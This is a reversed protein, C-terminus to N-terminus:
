SGLIEQWHCRDKPYESIAMAIKHCQLRYHRTNSILRYSLAQPGFNHEINHLFLHLDHLTQQHAKASQWWHDPHDVLHRLNDIRTRILRQRSQYKELLTQAIYEVTEKIKEHPPCTAPYGQETLEQITFLMVDGFFQREFEVSLDIDRDERKVGPRYESKRTDSLTRKHMMPLNASIFRDGLEARLIRGLVPGAMRLSLTAFPIFHRLAETNLVYNGTYVTRAPAISSEPPLYNYHTHRTPHQGDFFANLKAAFDSLCSRNSHDGRLTCQYQYHDDKPKFGFLDAMDHYAADNVVQRGPSHFACRQDPDQRSLATLFGQVDQLFNGVMVAPSVPPDGVVKGTVVQADTNSYLRDFNHFYNIAYVPESEAGINVRFEQDSDIFWILTNANEKVLESVKLYCINRTCSAGKHYFADTPHDGTIRYAKDRKIRDFQQLQKLQEDPGFYRIGLGQQTYKETTKRIQERNQGNQSDDAVLVSVKQYRLGNRGGYSFRECLMLLSNLCQDLHQPRDAIPIVIIFDHRHDTGNHALQAEMEQFLQRQQNLLPESYGSKALQQAVVTAAKDYLTILAEDSLPVGPQRNHQELRGILQNLEPEDHRNDILANLHQTRDTAM